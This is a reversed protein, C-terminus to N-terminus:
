IVEPSESFQLSCVCFEDDALDALSGSEFLHVRLKHTTTNYAAAVGVFSKVNAPTVAEFAPAGVLGVYTGPLFPLGPWEIEVIGTSVYSVTMGNGYVKTVAASGGEFRLVHVRLEPETYRAEHAAAGV